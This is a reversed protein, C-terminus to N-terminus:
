EAKEEEPSLLPWMQVHGCEKCVVIDAEKRDRPHKGTLEYGGIVVFSVNSGM